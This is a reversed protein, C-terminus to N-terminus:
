DKVPGNPEKIAKGQACNACASVALYKDSIYTINGKAQALKPAALALEQRQVCRLKLMRCHYHECLFLDADPIDNM